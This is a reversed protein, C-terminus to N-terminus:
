PSMVLHCNNLKLCHGDNGPTCWKLFPTVPKFYIVPESCQWIKHTSSKTAGPNEFRVGLNTNAARNLPTIAPNDLDKTASM